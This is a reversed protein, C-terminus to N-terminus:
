TLIFRLGTDLLHRGAGQPLILRLRAARKWAHGADEDAAITLSDVM